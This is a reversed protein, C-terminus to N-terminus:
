ELPPRRAACSRTGAARGPGSAVAPRAGEAHARLGGRAGGEAAPLSRSRASLRARGPAAGAAERHAKLRRDVAAPPGPPARCLVLRNEYRGSGGVAPAVTRGLEALVPAIRDLAELALGLHLAPQRNSALLVLLRGPDPEARAAM